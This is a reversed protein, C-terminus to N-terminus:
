AGPCFTDMGLAAKVDEVSLRGENIAEAIREPTVFPHIGLRELAAAASQSTGTEGHTIPLPKDMVGFDSTFQPGNEEVGVINHTHHVPAPTNVTARNIYDGAPKPNHFEPSPDADPYPFPVGLETSLLDARTDTVIVACHPDGYRRLFEVLPTAARAFADMHNGFSFNGM